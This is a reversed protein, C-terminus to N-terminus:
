VYEDRVIDDEDVIRYGSGPTHVHVQGAQPGTVRTVPSIVETSEEGKKVEVERTKHGQSM